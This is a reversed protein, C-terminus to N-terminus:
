LIRTLRSVRDIAEKEEPSVQIAMTGPPLGPGGGYGGAGGEGGVDGVGGPGGAPAGAVGGVPVGAAPIGAVGPRRGGAAPQGQIPENLLSVFAEQNQSIMQLSSFSMPLPFFCFLSITVGGVSVPVVSSPYM